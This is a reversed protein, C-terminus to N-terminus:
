EAFVNEDDIEMDHAGSFGNDSYADVQRKLAVYPTGGLIDRGITTKISTRAAVLKSLMPMIITQDHNLYVDVDALGTALKYGKKTGAVVIGARRIGGIVVSLFTEKGIPNELSRNLHDMLKARFIPGEGLIAAELLRQMVKAQMVERADDSQIREKIFNSAMDMMVFRLKQDVGEDCEMPMRCLTSDAYNTPWLFFSAEHERLVERMQKYDGVLGNVLVQRVTGAVIDAVQVLRESQDEVYRFNVSQFMDCRKEFYKVAGDQFAKSGHTDLVFDVRGSTCRAIRNYLLGNLNKYYSNRFKYGSEADLKYKDVALAYYRYPVNTLLELLSLRRHTDNAIRSSKFEAGGNFKKSVEELQANVDAVKDGDVIIGASVYYRDNPDPNSIIDSGSEDVYVSIYKNEIMVFSNDLM